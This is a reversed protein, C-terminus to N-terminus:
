DRNRLKQVQERVSPKSQISAKWQFNCRTSGLKITELLYANIEELRVMNLYEM